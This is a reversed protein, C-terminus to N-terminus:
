GLKVIKRMNFMFAKNSRIRDVRMLAYPVKCKKGCSFHPINAKPINERIGRHFVIVIAM